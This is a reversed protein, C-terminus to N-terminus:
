SKNESYISIVTRPMHADFHEALVVYKRITLDNSIVGEAQLLDFILEISADSRKSSYWIEFVWLYAPNDLPAVPMM